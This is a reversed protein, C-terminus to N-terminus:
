GPHQTATQLRVLHLPASTSDIFFTILPKTAHRAMDGIALDGILSASHQVARAQTEEDSDLVFAVLLVADPVELIALEEVTKTFAVGLRSVISSAWTAYCPMLSQGSHARDILAAILGERTVVAPSTSPAFWLSGQAQTTKVHTDM